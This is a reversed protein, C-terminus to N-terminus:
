ELIFGAGGSLRVSSASQVSGNSIGNANDNVFLRGQLIRELDTPPRIGDLPTRLKEATQPEVLYPTVIIVLESENQTFDNSRFLTGLLPVDGLGPFKDIGNRTSSSVLGGIAFSQGHGLEVTTEARRTSLAPIEINNLTIAGNDSLESVEPRVKLSIRNNELVTPTFDLSVGFQKFEIQLNGDDVGVPVPFEGGALFSATEGSLATLNPQALVTVFGENELADVIGDISIDGSNFGSFVAGAPGDQNVLRDFGNAPITRGSALGFVFDGPSFISEWNIGFIKGVSRSVEAVRVHLNVQTPNILTLRNIITEDQGLYRGAMQRADEIEVSSEVRGTLVIGNTVSKAQASSGLLNQLDSNLQAIDHGVKVSYQAIVNNGGDVAFLTTRGTNKGFLYIITDSQAQVDALNPDAIFVGTAPSPLKILNGQSVNITIQSTPRIVEQAMLSFPTIAIVVMLLSARILHRIM